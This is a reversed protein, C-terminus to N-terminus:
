RRARRLGDADDRDARVHDHHRHDRRRRQGHQLRRQGRGQRGQVRADGRRGAPMSSVAENAILGNVAWTTGELPRDPNAVESDTLTLTVGDKTLTM